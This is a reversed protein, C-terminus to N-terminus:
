HPHHPCYYIQDLYARSRGLDEQLKCHIKELTSEDCAGRAVVPQNTVLVSLYNSQNIQRIADAAFPFLQLLEVKSVYENSDTLTGDRDLFIASKSSKLSGKAIKGSILDKEVLAFRDPTGMDKIYERSQYAFIAKGEALLCPFLDRIFDIKAPLIRNPIVAAKNIVYFAANVRNPLYSTRHESVPHFAVIRSEKDTEVLDSDYPHDNPHVWLTIDSKKERHFSSMRSLDLNFLTDGYCVIFEEDLDNPRQRLLSLVAGATGLPESEEELRVDLPISHSKIFKRFLDTGYGCFLRVERVGESALVELQHLLVPKGAMLVLPKPLDGSVAKLRTGKGGVLILAQRM